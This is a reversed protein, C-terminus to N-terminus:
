RKAKRLEFLVMKTVDDTTQEEKALPKNDSSAPRQTITVPKKDWLDARKDREALAAVSYNQQQLFASDGGKMPARGISKRAEDLKLIGAGTGMTQVEMHTKSDMRLLMDVDLEVGENDPLKLGQDLCLELGEILIQLCQSYYQQNAAQINGYAPPSGFGIMYPPVKFAMCVVEVTWKLQEVIQSDIATMSMREFKLGNGLVAIKGTAGSGMYNEEWQKKLRAAEDEGIDDPTTLIGVALAGEGFFKTQQKQIILGQSAAAACAWIPSMGILPHFLCNFRDHIMESAPVTISEELGSLNDSSLQYYVAGSPTVAPTVLQPNLVHMGTVKGGTRELLIYANGTSLKSLIWSEVFQIRNQYANPRALLKELDADRRKTWVDGAKLYGIPNIPLKAMDSAILSVCAFVPSYSSVEEETFEINRQWAGSFAERVSPWLGRSSGVSQSIRAFGASLSKRLAGLGLRSKVSM